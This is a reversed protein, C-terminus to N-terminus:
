HERRKGFDQARKQLADMRRGAELIQEQTAKKKLEMIWAEAQEQYLRSAIGTRKGSHAITDMKNRGYWTNGGYVAMGWANLAALTTPNVFRLQERTVVAQIEALKDTTILSTPTIQYRDRLWKHIANADDLIHGVLSFATSTNIKMHRHVAANALPDLNPKPQIPAVAPELEENSILPQADRTEDPAVEVSAVMEAMPPVPQPECLYLKDKSERIKGTALLESMVKAGHEKLFFIVPFGGKYEKIARLALYESGATLLLLPTPLGSTLLLPPNTVIPCPLAKADRRAQADPHRGSKPTSDIRREYPTPDHKPAVPCIAPIKKTKQPAVVDLFTHRKQESTPIKGMFKYYEDPETPIIRYAKM